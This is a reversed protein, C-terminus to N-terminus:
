RRGEVVRVFIEELSPLAVEYSDVSVGRDLLARLVVAPEVGEELSLENLGNRGIRVQPGPLEFASIAGSDLNRVTIKLPM